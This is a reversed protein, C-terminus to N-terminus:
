AFILHCFLNIHYSIYPVALLTLVVCQLLSLFKPFLLYFLAEWFKFCHFPHPFSICVFGGSPPPPHNLWDPCPSGMSTEAAAFTQPLTACRHTSVRRPNLPSFPSYKARRILLAWSWHTASNLCCFQHLVFRTLAIRCPKGCHALIMVQKGRAWLSHAPESFSCLGDSHYIGLCMEQREYKETCRQYKMKWRMLTVSCEGRSCRPACSSLISTFRPSQAPFSQHLYVSLSICSLLNVHICGTDLNIHKM